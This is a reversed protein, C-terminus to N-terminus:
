PTRLYYGQFVSDDVCDGTDKILLVPGQVFLVPKCHDDIFGPSPIDKPAKSGATTINRRLSVQIGNAEPKANSAFIENSIAYGWGPGDGQAHDIEGHVDYKGDGVDTVDVTRVRKYSGM